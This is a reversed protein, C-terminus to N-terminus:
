FFQDAKSKFPRSKGNRKEKKWRYNNHKAMTRSCHCVFVKQLFCVKHWQIAQTHRRAKLGEVMWESRFPRFNDEENGFYDCSYPSPHNHLHILNHIGFLCIHIAVNTCPFNYGWNNDFVYLHLMESCSLDFLIINAGFLLVLSLRNLCLLGFAYGWRYRCCWFLTWLHDLLNWCLDEFLTMNRYYRFVSKDPCTCHCENLTKLFPINRILVNDHTLGYSFPLTHFAILNAQITNWYRWIVSAVALYSLGFLM